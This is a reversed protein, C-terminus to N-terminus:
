TLRAIAILSGGRLWRLRRLPAEARMSWRFLTNLPPPPIKLAKSVIQM